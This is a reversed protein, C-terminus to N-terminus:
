VDEDKFLSKFDKKKVPEDVGLIRRAKEDSAPPEADVKPRFEECFNFMERDRIPETGPVLCDNPKGVSYYRCNKCVHLDAECHVCVARFGIKIPAESIKKRCKWCDM